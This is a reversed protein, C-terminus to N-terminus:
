RPYPSTVWPLQAASPPWYRHALRATLQAADDRSITRIDDSCNGRADDVLMPTHEWYLQWIMMQGIDPYRHDSRTRQRIVAFPEQDGPTRASFFAVTVTVAPDLDACCDDCVATSWDGDITALYDHFYGHWGCRPCDDTTRETLRHRQLPGRPPESSEILRPLRARRTAADAAQDHALRTCGAAHGHEIHAPRGTPTRDTVQRECVPCPWTLPPYRRSGTLKEASYQTARYLLDAAPAPIMGSPQSVIGAADKYEKVGCAAAIADWTYGGARAASTLRVLDEDPVGTKNHFYAALVVAPDDM